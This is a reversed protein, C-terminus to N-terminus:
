RKRLIERQIRYIMKLLRVREDKDFDSFHLRYRQQGIISDKEAAVVTARKIRIRQEPTDEPFTLTLDILTERDKPATNGPVNSDESEYTGTIRTGLPPTMRFHQRRQLREMMYPFRVWLERGRIEGERTQFRFPVEDEGKFEFHLRWGEAAAIAERFGDPEDIQFFSGTPREKIQLILTLRKYDTEQLHVHLITRDKQLKRLLMTLSEGRIKETEEM